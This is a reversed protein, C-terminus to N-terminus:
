LRRLKAHGVENEHKEKNKLLTISEEKKINMTFLKTLVFEFMLNVKWLFLLLISRFYDRSLDISFLFQKLKNTVIFGNIYYVVKSSFYKSYCFLIM